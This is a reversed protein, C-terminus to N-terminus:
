STFDLLIELEGSVFPLFCWSVWFSMFRFTASMWQLTPFTRPSHIIDLAEGWASFSICKATVCVSWCRNREFDSLDERLTWWLLRGSGTSATSMRGQEAHLCVSSISTRYLSQSSCTDAWIALACQLSKRVIRCHNSGFGSPVSVQGPVKHSCCVHGFSSSWIRKIRTFASYFQSAKSPIM